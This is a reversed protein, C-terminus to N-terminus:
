AHTNAGYISILTTKFENLIKFQLQTNRRVNVLEELFKVKTANSKCNLQTDIIVENALKVYIPDNQIFPLAQFIGKGQRELDNAIELIISAHDM